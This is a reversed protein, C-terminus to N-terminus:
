RLITWIIAAGGLFLLVLWSIRRGRGIGAATMRARWLREYKMFGDLVDEATHGLGAVLLCAPSTAQDRRRRDGHVHHWASIFATAFLYQHMIALEQLSMGVGNSWGTEKAKSQGDLFARKANEYLSVTEPPHHSIATEVDRLGQAILTLLEQKTM